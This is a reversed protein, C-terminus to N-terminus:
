KIYSKFMMERRQRTFCAQSGCGYPPSFLVRVYIRDFFVQFNGEADVFGSFWQAFEEKEVLSYNFLKTTQDVEGEAAFCRLAVRSQRTENLIPQTPLTTQSPRKIGYLNTVLPLINNMNIM